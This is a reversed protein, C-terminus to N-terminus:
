TSKLRITERGKVYSVGLIAEPIVMWDLVPLVRAENAIPSENSICSVCSTTDIGGDEVAPVYVSLSKMSDVSVVRGIVLVVILTCTM